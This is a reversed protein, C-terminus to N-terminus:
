SLNSVSSLTGGPPFYSNNELIEKNEGNLYVPNDNIFIAM